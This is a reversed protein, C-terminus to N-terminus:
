KKVRRLANLIERTSAHVSSAVFGMMLLIFALIIFLISMLMSGYQKVTGTTLYEVFVSYGFGVALAFPFISFLLFFQMPRYDRFLTLVTTIIYMGDSFTDLKSKSGAPRPRYTIPLEKIRLGEELAKITIETEITFGVSILNLKEVAYANLVRYGSLMDKIKVPFCFKLALLILHNGITHLFRKEEKTFQGMRNGVCMDVEGSLIPKLLKHVDGAEYTDDADVVVYYDASITEFAAQLARGKGKQPVYIVKAGAKKAHSATSDTSANDIVYISASPLEKRFDRVVKAITLEENLAPILVAINLREHAKNKPTSKATSRTREKANDKRTAKITTAKSTDAIIVSNM